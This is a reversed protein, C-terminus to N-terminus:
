PPPVDVLVTGSPDNVTSAGNTELYVAAMGSFNISAPVTTLSLNSPVADFNYTESNPNATDWFVLTDAGGGYLNLAGALSGLYQTNPCVDFRNGGSGAFVSTVASTSDILFHDSGPGAFLNLGGVGSYTLLFGPLGGVTVTSATIAYTENGGYGSDDANVTSTGSADNVTVQGIGDLTHGTNTVNITDGGAGANVTVATGPGTGQINFTLSGTGANLVLSQISSYTVLASANRSTTTATVTYADNFTDNQDYENLTNNGGGGNLTLNGKISDLFKGTPALNFTDDGAGANITVPTGSATSEINYTVNGSGGDIVVGQLSNYTVLASANRTTTTGTVTYADNFTDNQDYETLTKTGGGSGTVTVNGKINDLFRAVPSLNVADTGSGLNVTVPLGAATKEINVTDNGTGSNVTISGSITTAGPDFTATEGNLTVQVGGAGTLGVTVADNKNALQDGNVTLAHGSSVLFNQAQGTPVIYAHNAKSFWSQVVYGGLHYTYNQAEGDSIENWNTPNPPNVQISTGEPDTVGEALEHSYITTLLDQSSNNIEWGYHARNHGAGYDIYTHLGLLSTGTTSGPQPVVFYYLNADSDPNPLTNNAINATLMNFVNTNNFTSPPNSSTITISAKLSGPGLTPWYEKLPALYPGTTISTVANIMTTRLAPGGGSNWGGGWFILEVHPQLILAGGGDTTSATTLNNFLIAPATRDELPELSPRRRAPQAPRRGPRQLSKTRNRWWTRFM